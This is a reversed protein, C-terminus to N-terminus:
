FLQLRMVDADENPIFIVQVAQQKGMLLAKLITNEQEQPAEIRLRSPKQTAIDGITKLLSTFQDTEFVDISLDLRTTGRASQRTKNSQITKKTLTLHSLTFGSKKFLDGLLQQSITQQSTFTVFNDKLSVNVSDADVGPLQRIKKGVSYVCFACVMGKVDAQYHYSDAYTTISFIALSLVLLIKKFM